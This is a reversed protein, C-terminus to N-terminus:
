QLMGGELTVTHSIVEIDIIKFSTHQRCSSSKYLIDQYQFIRTNYMNLFQLQKGGNVRRQAKNMNVRHEMQWPKVSKDPSNRFRPLVLHHVRSSQRPGASEICRALPENPTESRSEFPMQTPFRLSLIYLLQIAIYLMIYCMLAGFFPFQKIGSGHEERPWTTASTAQVYLISYLATYM